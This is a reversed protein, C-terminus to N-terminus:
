NTHLKSHIILVSFSFFFYDEIAWHYLVRSNVSPNYTRARSPSNKNYLSTFLSSILSWPWATLVGGKWPPLLPEFGRPTMLSLLFLFLFCSLLSMGIHSLQCLLQNTILLNVTRTREDAKLLCHYIFDPKGQFFPCIGSHGFPVSQLDAPLAKSPEFGERGM